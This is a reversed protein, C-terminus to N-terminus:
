KAVHQWCCVSATSCVSVAQPSADASREKKRQPQKADGLSPWSIGVEELPAPTSEALPQSVQPLQWLCQCIGYQALRM